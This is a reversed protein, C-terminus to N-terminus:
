RPGKGLYPEVARGEEFAGIRRIEWELAVGSTEFVRARVTEGLSELDFATAAGVNIL